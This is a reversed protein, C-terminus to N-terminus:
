TMWKAGSRVEFRCHEHMSSKRPLQVVSTGPLHDLADLYGQIYATIFYCNTEKQAKDFCHPCDRVEVQNGLAEIDLFDNLAPWLIRKLTKELSLLGGLSQNNTCQWRGFGKGLRTFLDQRIDSPIENEINTLLHRIDPYQGILQKGYSKLISNIDFGTTSQIIPVEESVSDHVQLVQPIDTKLYDFEGQSFEHNADIGFRVLCVDNDDLDSISQGVVKYGKTILAVAIKGLIGAQKTTTMEINSIM